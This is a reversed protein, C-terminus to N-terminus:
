RGPDRRTIGCRKAPVQPATAPASVDAPADRVNHAPEFDAHGYWSIGYYGYEEDAERQYFRAAFAGDPSAVAKATEAECVIVAVDAVMLANQTELALEVSGPCDLLTWREGLFEAGAVNVEVSMSRARAEPASDGVSNGDRVSGKRTTAGTAFLLSELLTTKGSLYPGVLAACRPAAAAREGM